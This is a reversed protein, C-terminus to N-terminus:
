RREPAFGGLYGSRGFDGVSVRIWLRRRRSRLRWFSFCTFEIRGQVHHDGEAPFTHAQWMLSVGFDLRSNSLSICRLAIQAPHRTFPHLPARRASGRVSRCHQPHHLGGVADGAFRYREKEIWRDFANWRTQSTAGATNNTSIFETTLDATIEGQMLPDDQYLRRDRLWGKGLLSYASVGLVAFFMTFSIASEWVSVHAAQQTVPDPAVPAPAASSSNHLGVSILLGLCFLLLFAVFVRRKLWLVFSPSVALRKARLYQDRSIRYTFKM